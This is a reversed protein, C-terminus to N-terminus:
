EEDDIIPPGPPAAPLSIGEGGGFLLNGLKQEIAAVREASPQQVVVRYQLDTKPCFVVLNDRGLSDTESGELRLLRRRIMLLTLVYRTDWDGPQEDLETFYHVMVDSPAWQVKRVNADPIQFKWFGLAGDPPGTWAEAAYDLRVVEAGRSVLASYVTEGPKLERDSLACKRACRQVDFDIM